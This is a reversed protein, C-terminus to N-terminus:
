TRTRAIRFDSRRTRAAIPCMAPRAPELLAGVVATGLAGTGGTVVVHRDPRLRMAHRGRGRTQARADAAGSADIWNAVERPACKRTSCPRTSATAGPWRSTTPIATSRKSIPSSADRQRRTPSSAKARDAAHRQPARDGGHRALSINRTISCAGPSRATSASKPPRCTPRARQQGAGHHRARLTEVEDLHVTSPTSCTSGQRCVDSAQPRGRDARHQAGFGIERGKPNKRVVGGAAVTISRCAGAAESCRRRRSDAGRAGTRDAADIAPGGDYVHLASGTIAVGDYGELAATRCTPARIPRIASTSWPARAAARAAPRCLRREHGRAAPRSRSARLEATNGEIVLLRPSPMATRSSRTHLIGAYKMARDRSMRSAQGQPRLRRQCTLAPRSAQPIQSAALM